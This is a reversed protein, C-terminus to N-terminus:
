LHGGCEFFVFARYGDLKADPAYLLRVRYQMRTDPRFACDKGHLGFGDPGNTSGSWLLEQLRGGCGAVLTNHSDFVDLHVAAGLFPSGGWVWPPYQSARPGRVCLYLHCDQNIDAMNSVAYEKQITKTMDFDPMSISYGPVAIPGIRRSTNAFTGDGFSTSVVPMQTAKWLYAGVVTVCATISVIFFIKRSIM